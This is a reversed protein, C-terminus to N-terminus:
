ENGSWPCPGFDLRPCHCFFAVGLLKWGLIITSVRKCITMASKFHLKVKLQRREEFLRRGGSGAAMGSCLKSLSNDIQGSATGSIRCGERERKERLTIDHKSLTANANCSVM